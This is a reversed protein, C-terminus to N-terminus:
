KSEKKYEEVLQGVRKYIDQKSLDSTYDYYHIEFGLTELEYIVAKYMAILAKANDVVGELQDKENITKLITDIGPDCFIILPNLERLAKLEASDLTWLTSNRIVTGYVIDCIPLFRDYVILDKGEGARKLQSYTWQIQEIAPRFPGLSVKAMLTGRGINRILEQILTTKGTNDMGEVIILKNKM